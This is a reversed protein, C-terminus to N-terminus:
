PGLSLARRGALFCLANLCFTPQDNVVASARGALMTLVTAM